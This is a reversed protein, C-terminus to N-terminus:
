FRKDDRSPPSWSIKSNMGSHIGAKAPIVSKNIINNKVVKANEADKRHFTTSLANLGACIIVSEVWVSM